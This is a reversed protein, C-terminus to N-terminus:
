ISKLIEKLKKTNMSTDRPVFFMAERRTINKVDKKGLMKALQKVTKRKTGVNIVGLAGSIKALKLIHPAIIKLSDRSTYQDIFARDYPFVDPSFSTRVILSNDYARVVCEGGLKSWAYINQPLLEDEEIYGGRDGKYVYDTSIYILKIGNKACERAVNFTGVVNVLMALIPENNCQMPGTLAACHIFVSPRHKEIARSVSEPKSIDMERHTPVCIKGDLSKLYKGLRGSGGSILIKNKM